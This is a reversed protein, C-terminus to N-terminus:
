FCCFYVGLGFALKLAFSSVLSFGSGVGLELRVEQTDVLVRDASRAEITRCAQRSVCSRCKTGRDTSVMSTISVVM